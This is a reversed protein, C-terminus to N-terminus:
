MKEILCVCECHSTRSFMDVCKIKELKYGGEIFLNLDRSLTASNCSIYVVNKVESSIITDIVKKDLGKRPPDVSIIEIKNEKLIKGVVDESKGYIFKSNNVNNLIANEKADIISDKVVEVGIVKKFNKAFYISTTGIGCYLDLLIKDKNEGLLNKAEKYLKETQYKNVQFFSKPSIKFKYEGIKDIFESKKYIEVTNNGMVTSNKKDNINLFIGVIKENEKLEKLLDVIKKDEKAVVFTLIMDGNFNSRISINKLIGTNQHHNYATIGHKKILCEITGLVSNLNNDSVPCNEVRIKNSGGDAYYCLEGNENIKLEIKNRYNLINENSIFKIDELDIHANKRLNNLVSNKKLEVEKEYKLNIYPFIHSFENSFNNERFESKKLIEVTRGTWFKKKKDLIEIKVTDGILANEVFITIGDIKAVGLGESSSDIIEVRDIIEM